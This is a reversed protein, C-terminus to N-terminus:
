FYCSEIRTYQNEKGQPESHEMNRCQRMRTSLCCLGTAGRMCVKDRLKYLLSDVPFYPSFLRGTTQRTHISSKIVDSRQGNTKMGIKTVRKEKTDMRERMTHSLFRVIAMLYYRDTLYGASYPQLKGRSSSRISYFDNGSIGTATLRRLTYGKQFASANYLSIFDTFRCSILNEKRQRQCCGLNQLVLQV